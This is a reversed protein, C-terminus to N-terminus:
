KGDKALLKRLREIQDSTLAKLAAEDAAKSHYRLGARMKEREGPDKESFLGRYLSSAREWFPTVSEAVRKQAAKDLKLAGAVEPRRMASLGEENLLALAIEDAANKDNFIQTLVAVYPSDLKDIGELVLSSSKPPSRYASIAALKERLQVREEDSVLRGLKSDSSKALENAVKMAAPFGFMDRSPGRDVESARGIFRQIIDHQSGAAEQAQLPFTLLVVWAVFSSTVWLNLCQLNRYCMRLWAENWITSM